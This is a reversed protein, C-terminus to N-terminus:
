SINEINFDIYEKGKNVKTKVALIKNILKDNFNYKKQLVDIFLKLFNDLDALPSSVGFEIQLEYPPKPLKMPRLKLLVEKEYANYEPTKFRRGQFAKNISLPKVNVRM